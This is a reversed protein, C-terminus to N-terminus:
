NRYTDERLIRQLVDSPTKVVHFDSWGTHGTWLLLFICGTNTTHPGHPTGPRVQLMTGPAHKEEVENIFDGELIYIVETSNKHYHAPIIAHPEMTVKFITPGLSRDGTLVSLSVKGVAPFPCDQPEVQSENLIRHFM